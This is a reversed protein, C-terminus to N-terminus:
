GPGRRREPLEGVWLAGGEAYREKKFIPAEAKIRDMLWRCADFAAGRHPAAVVVAISADGVPVEGLRHAVRARTIAFREGAEELLADVVSAAMEPYAEYALGVVERGDHHDRTVGSFTVVAGDRDTRVARELARPDLPEQQLVFGFREGDPAGGSIPPILAVEDGDRLVRQADAYERNVAWAFPLRALDPARAVLRQAVGELTTGEPVELAFVGEGLLERVSAFCRVTVKM